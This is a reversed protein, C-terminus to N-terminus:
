PAPINFTTEEVQSFEGGSALEEDNIFLTYNGSGFTCCIGDVDMIMFTYTGHHFCKTDSYLTNPSKYPGGEMNKSALYTSDTLSQIIEWSTELPYLDTKVDVKVEAKGCQECNLQSTCIGDSCINVTCMDNDECDSSSDCAEFPRENPIKENQAFIDIDSATATPELSYTITPALTGTPPSTEDMTIVFNKEEVQSFDVLHWNKMMLLYLTAEVELVAVFEM